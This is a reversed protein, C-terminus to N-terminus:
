TKVSSPKMLALMLKWHQRDQSIWTLAPVLCQEALCRPPSQSGLDVVAVQSSVATPVHSSLGLLVATFVLRGCWRNTNLSEKSPTFLTKQHFPLHFHRVHWLCVFVSLFPFKLPRYFMAVTRLWKDFGVYISSYWNWTDFHSFAKTSCLCCIHQDIFPELQCGIWVRASKHM